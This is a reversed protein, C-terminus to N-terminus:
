RARRTGTSRRAVDRCARHLGLRTARGYFACVRVSSLRGCCSSSSVIFPVSPFNIQAATAAVTRPVPQLWLMASWFDPAIADGGDGEVAPEDVFAAPSRAASLVIICSCTYRAAAAVLAASLPRSASNLAAPPASSALPTASDLAIPETYPASASFAKRGSHRRWM